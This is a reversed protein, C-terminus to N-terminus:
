GVPAEVPRFCTIRLCGKNKKKKMAYANEQITNIGKTSEAQPMMAPSKVKMNARCVNPGAKAAMM